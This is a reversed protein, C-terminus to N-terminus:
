EVKVKKHEHGCIRCFDANIIQRIVEKGKNNKCYHQWKYLDKDAHKSM